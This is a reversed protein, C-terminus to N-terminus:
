DRVFLRFLQTTPQDVSVVGLVFPFIGIPANDPFMQTLLGNMSIYGLPAGLLIGIILLWIFEKNISKTISPLGAGLVKRISFERMRRSVNFSVLGFLGMCALILALLSVFRMIRINGDLNQFFFDFVEGQIFGEYPLEAEVEKWSEKMFSAVNAVQGANSRVALYRFQEQEAVLMMTPFIAEYFVDAHFDEVVGIVNYKKDEHEVVKDIPDEWNMRKAFAQNIIISETKDSVIEREFFRGKDLRVGMTQLYDFGVNFRVARFDENDIRVNTLMDNVGIHLETGAVTIIDPNMLAKNKVVEFHKDANVPVVVVGQQNYGWDKQKMFSVADSFIFGSIITWFALFFQLTLFSKTLWSKRGFREKGRFINVPSFSSIYFAPYGGSVLATFLLIGGFFSFAMGSSSFQFPLDFPLQANFGPLFLFYALGLGLILSFSCLLINEILFQRVLENRTGGMVKRLGIEKLRKTATVIGINMYNLCALLLLFLAIVALAINGNPVNGFSISGNIRYSNESLTELPQLEFSNIIWDDSARNHLERYDTMLSPISQIDAGEGTQIFIVDALAGWDHIDNYGELEIDQFNTYPILIGFGFSTTNPIDVVAKVVFSKKVQRGFTVSLDQNIPDKDGYYKQAMRKSIVVSNKNNLTNKDGKLFPFSFMELFDLDVFHVVEEFIEDDYKVIGGVTNVRTSAVIQPIDNKLAPGMPEPLDAWLETTGDKQVHSVVEYINHSQDHFSDLSYQWDLYMFAVIACGVATSLGFLNIFSPLKQRLLNRIGVIFYNKVMALNNNTHRQTKSRKINSWRFFRITDWIFKRSAARNGEEEVRRDFLEHVDGQIEELLDPNCYWKLFRNAWKPPQEQM